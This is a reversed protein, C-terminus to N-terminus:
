RICPVPVTHETCGLATPTAEALGAAFCVEEQAGAHEKAVRDPVGGTEQVGAQEGVGLM